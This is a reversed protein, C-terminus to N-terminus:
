DRAFKKRGLKYGELEGPRLQPVVYCGVFEASFRVVHPSYLKKYLGNEKAKIESITEHCHFPHLSFNQYFFDDNEAQGMSSLSPAWRKKEWIEEAFLVYVM